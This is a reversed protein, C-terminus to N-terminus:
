SQRSLYISCLIKCNRKGKVIMEHAAMRNPILLLSEGAFGEGFARASEECREASDTWINMWPLLRASDSELWSSYRTRFARGLDRSQQLGRISIKGIEDETIWSSYSSLFSLRGSWKGTGNKQLTRLRELFPAIAYHYDHGNVHIIGHRFLYVASDVKRSAPTAPQQLTKFYPSIATIHKAINFDM